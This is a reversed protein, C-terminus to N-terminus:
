SCVHLIRHRTLFIHILDHFIPASTHDKPWLHVCSILLINFSRGQCTYVQIALIFSLHVAALCAWIFIFCFELSREWDDAFGDSM